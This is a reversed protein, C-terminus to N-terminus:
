IQRQAVRFEIKYERLENADQNNLTGTPSQTFSGNSLVYTEVGNIDNDGSGKTVVSRKLSGNFTTVNQANYASNLFIDDESNALVRITMDHVRADVRAAIVVRDNAGNVRSTPPNVPALEIYDGAIFDNFLHGNLVLEGSDVNIAISM